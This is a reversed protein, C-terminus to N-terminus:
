VITTLGPLAIGEQLCYSRWEQRVPAVTTYEDADAVTLVTTNREAPEVRLSTGDVQPAKKM